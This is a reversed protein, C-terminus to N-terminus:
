CNRCRVFQKWASRMSWSGMHSNKRYLTWLIERLNGQQRWYFCTNGCTSKGGDPTKDRICRVNHLGFQKCNEEWCLFLKEMQKWPMYRCVRRCHQSRWRYLVTGSGIDYVVADETLHLKCISVSRVEEKTMPVQGRIFVDDPYGPTLRHKRPQENILMGAYLGEEPKDQLQDKCSIRRIKRCVTRYVIKDFAM